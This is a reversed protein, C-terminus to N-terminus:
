VQLHCEVASLVCSALSFVLLGALFITLCHLIQHVKKTLFILPMPQVEKESLPKSLVAGSVVMGWVWM